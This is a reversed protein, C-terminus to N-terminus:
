LINQVTFKGWWPTSPTSEKGYLRVQSQRPINQRNSNALHQEPSYVKGCISINRHVNSYCTSNIETLLNGGWGGKCITHPRGTVNWQGPPQTAFSILAGKWTVNGTVDKDVNLVQIPFKLHQPNTYIELVLSLLLHKGHVKDQSYAAKTFYPSNSHYKVKYYKTFIDICYITVVQMTANIEHPNFIREMSHDRLECKGAEYLSSKPWTLVPNSGLKHVTFWLIFETTALYCRM